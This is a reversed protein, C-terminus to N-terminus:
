HRNVARFEASLCLKIIVNSDNEEEYNELLTEVICISYQAKNATINHLAREVPWPQNGGMDGLASPAQVIVIGQKM